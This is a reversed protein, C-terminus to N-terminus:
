RRKAVVKKGRRASKRRAVKRRQASDIRRRSRSKSHQVKHCGEGRVCITEATVPLHHIHRYALNSMEARKSRFTEVPM